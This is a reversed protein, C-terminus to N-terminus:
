IPSFGQYFSYRDHALRDDVVVLKRNSAEQVRLHMWRNFYFDYAIVLPNIVTPNIAMFAAFQEGVKLPFQDGRRCGLVVTFM